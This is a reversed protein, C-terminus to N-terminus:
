DSKPSKGAVIMDSLKEPMEFSFSVQSEEAPNHFTYFLHIRVWNKKWKWEEDSEM